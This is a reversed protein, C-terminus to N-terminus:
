RRGGSGRRRRRRATGPASGRAARAAARAPARAAPGLPPRRGRAAAQAGRRRGRRRGPRARRRRGARGPRRSRRRARLPFRRPLRSPCRSPSSTRCRRRPRRPRRARRPRRRPPPRRPPHRRWPRRWRARRAAPRRPPRRRPRGAARRPRRGPSTPASARRPAAPVLLPRTPRRAAVPRPRLAAPRGRAAAGGARGRARRGVAPGRCSRRGHTGGRGPWVRVALLSAALLWCRSGPSSWRSRRASARRSGTRSLRTWVIASALCRRGLTAGARWVATWRVHRGTTPARSWPTAPGAGTRATPEPRSRGVGPPSQDTNVFLCLWRRPRARARLRPLPRSSGCPTRPPWGAGRLAAGARARLRARRRVAAGTARARRRLAPRHMLGGAVLASPSAARAAGHGRLRARGHAAPRRRRRRVLVGPSRRWRRRGRAPQRLRALLLAGLLTRARRGYFPLLAILSRTSWADAVVFAPWQWAGRMRWRLRPWGAASEVMTVTLRLGGM